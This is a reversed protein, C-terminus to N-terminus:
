SFSSGTAALHDPLCERPLTVSFCSGPTKPKKELELRGGLLRAYAWSIHLGLGIDNIPEAKGKWPGDADGPFRLLAEISEHEVGPGADDVTIRFYGEGCKLRLLVESGVPSFKAANELIPELVDWVKIPDALTLCDPDLECRLRQQKADLHTQFEEAHAALMESLNVPRNEVAIRGELAAEIKELKQLTRLMTEAYRRLDRGQEGYLDGELSLKGLVVTLRTRIDQATLKLAQANRQQAEFLRTNEQKLRDNQLCLERRLRLLSLHTEVHRWVDEAQLPAAVFDFSGPQFRAEIERRRRVHGLILLVGGDRAIAEQIARISGAWDAGLFAVNVLVLTPEGNPERSLLPAVAKPHHIELQEEALRDILSQHDPSLEDIMWFQVM